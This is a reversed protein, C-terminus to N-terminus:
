TSPSVLRPRTVIARQRRGPMAVPEASRDSGDDHNPRRASPSENSDPPLRRRARTRAVSVDHRAHDAALHVYVMGSSPDYTNM